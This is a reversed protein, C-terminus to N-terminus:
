KCLSAQVITDVMIGLDNRFKDEHIFRSFWIPGYSLWLLIHLHLAGRSQAETIAHVARSHLQSGFIGHRAEDSIIEKKSDM